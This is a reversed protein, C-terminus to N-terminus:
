GRAWRCHLLCFSQSADKLPAAQVDPTLTAPAAAVVDTLPAARVDIALAAPSAAAADALLAAPADPALTAPVTATADTLPAAQVDPALTAPAAASADALLATSVHPALPWHADPASAGRTRREGHMRRYWLLYEAYCQDTDYIVFERFTNRGKERDGLVSDNEGQSWLRSCSRPTQHPRM